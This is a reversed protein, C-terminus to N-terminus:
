PKAPPPPPPPQKWGAFSRRAQLIEHLEANTMWYIAESLVGSTPLIRVDYGPLQVVADGFAWHQNVYIEGLALKAVDAPYYDTFSWALTAGRQRANEAFYGFQEGAFIQSFGVSFVFDGPQLVIEDKQHFWDKNIQQFYSPDHACGLQRLVAHGHVFTYLHKGATRSTAAVTAVARLNDTEKARVVELDARMRQLFARAVWYRAVPVPKKVHFKLASLPKTREAFGPVAAGLYMTPMQGLRTCAAVFEGTWVWVVVANATPDTPVVWTGDEAQFLGGHYAAHNDITADFKAGEQAAKDLLPQRAVAIVYNGQQRFAAADALDQAWREERLAFVVVTKTVRQPNPMYRLRMMGGSRGAGESALGADGYLGLVYDEQVFRRAAQEATLTIQPLDRELRFMCTRLWSYYEDDGHTWAPAPPPEAARVPLAASWLGLALWSMLGLWARCGTLTRKM